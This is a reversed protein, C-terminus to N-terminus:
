AERDAGDLIPIVDDLIDEFETENLGLHKLALGGGKDWELSFNKGSHLQVVRDALLGLAMLNKSQESLNNNSDSLLAYEHHFRVAYSITEPLYWSKTMLFGMTAHDTGHSEDEIDTFKRATSNNAADLTLKYETFRQMLIPIGCNQFLGFTYAEEKDLGPIRKAIISAGIAFKASSDWFREMNVQDKGSFVNRLVLGTITRSVMSLGLMIIAQSVSNIKNRLGYFPSNVTKLLTASLGVDKTVLKEVKSFDPEEKRAEDALELLIRPCPPIGISTAVREMEKDILEMDSM